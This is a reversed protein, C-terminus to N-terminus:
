DGSDGRLLAEADNGFVGQGQRDEQFTSIAQARARDERGVLGKEEADADLAAPSYELIADCAGAFDGNLLKLGVIDSRTAFTGFRQLGFYNLFGREALGTMGQKLAERIKSIREEIEMQQSDHLDVDRLTILFENGELEGLGVEHERYEFDGLVVMRLTRNLAALRQADVRRASVHQVTVARRDKTGAFGLEKTNMKLFRALLSLVEM